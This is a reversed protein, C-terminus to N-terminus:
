RLPVRGGSSLSGYRYGSASSTVTTAVNAFVGGIFWEFGPAWAYTLTTTLRQTPQTTRTGRYDVHQLGVGADGALSWGLDRGFRTRANLEVHAYRKPSFYGERAEREHQLGRVLIGLSRGRGLM